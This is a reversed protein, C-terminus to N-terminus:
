NVNQDLLWDEIMVHQIQPARLLATRAPLLNKLWPHRAIGALARMGISKSKQAEVNDTLRKFTARVINPQAGLHIVTQIGMSLTKEVADWLRQPQDIWRQLIERTNYDNYSCEGTVLSLVRPKPATLAGRMTHLLVGFRNPLNRDWTIPTHLPPWRNDSRRMLLRIPVADFLRREFRDLTDGQGALLVSNPSLYASIGMVGRGEQNIWVCHRRVQELPLENRRCFLVASTVSAALEVCDQALPHSVKIAEDLELAGGAVLAAFEGGSYGFSVSASEYSIGFCQQLVRLEAMQMALIIANAETYSDLTPECARRVQDILDTERGTLEACVDSAQQLYVRVIPGYAPHALLEQSRGLNSLDHGRFALASVPLRDNIQATDM